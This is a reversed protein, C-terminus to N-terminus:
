FCIGKVNEQKAIDREEPRMTYPAGPGEFPYYQTVDSTVCLFGSDFPLAVPGYKRPLSLFLATAKSAQSYFRKLNAQKYCDTIHIYM